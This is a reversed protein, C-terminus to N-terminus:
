KSRNMIFGNNVKELGVKPYYDLASDVSLLLVMSQEGAKQKTISIMKKGIGINKYDQRVALDALYCCWCYDTLSRSLGVLLGGDWCSVLLNSNELMRNIRGHDHTPRPLGANDYLDIVQLHTPIIETSYILEMKERKKDSM